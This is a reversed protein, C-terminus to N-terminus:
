GQSRELLWDRLLLAEAKAATDRHPVTLYLSETPEVEIDLLRVLEGRRILPEALRRQALAVHDTAAVYGFAVITSDVWSDRSDPARARDVGALLKGWHDESGILHVLPQALVTDVEPASGLSAATAASAVVVFPDDFLLKNEFGPWIGSGLWMEIDVDEASLMATFISSTATVGINPHDTTFESILSPLWLTNYAVPARMTLQTETDQGFVGATSGLVQEFADRISPLYARGRETLRVGRPLREFLRHGLHAELARIRHSVTAQSVSLEASAAAFNEYRAAAEFAELGLLPPLQSAIKSEKM